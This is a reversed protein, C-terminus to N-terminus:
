FIQSIGPNDLIVHCMQKKKDEEIKRIMDRIRKEREEEEIEYPSKQPVEEV